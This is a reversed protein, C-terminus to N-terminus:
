RKLTMENNQRIKDNLRDGIGGSTKEKRKEKKKKKGKRPSSRCCMSTGLALPGIPATAVHRYWLWLLKPDSGRRRGVGCSM